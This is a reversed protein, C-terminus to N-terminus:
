SIPVHGLNYLHELKLPEVALVKIDFVPRIHPYM